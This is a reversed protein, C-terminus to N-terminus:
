QRVLIFEVRRDKWRNELDSFPVIPQAGGIGETTIRSADIGLKVLASKIADARAKSLPLLVEEQERKGEEPKDWYVMVAHGEIRIRYQSYRTFIQALRKLTQMNKEARDPPVDTYDATNAQFTISTIRVKLRDGDRIVLVDIPVTQRVTAVNGLADKVTAVFPYDQAAEVLEGNASLGDWTLSGEPAGKGSFSNFYHNEPDLIQLDWSDM